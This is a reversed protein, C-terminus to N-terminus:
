SFMSNGSDDSNLPEEAEDQSKLSNQLSEKVEDDNAKEINEEANLSEKPIDEKTDQIQANEETNEEAVVDIYGEEEGQNYPEGLLLELNHKAEKHKPEVELAKKYYKIAREIDGVLEYALALNYLTDANDPIYKLVESFQEISQAYELEKTLMIAYAIRASTNMPDINIADYFAIKANKIAGMEDYACGLGFYYRSEQPKIAIARKFHAISDQFSKIYYNCRGLEYYVEDNEEDYKLAEFFKDFAQNYEGKQFLNKAWACILNSIYKIIIEGHEPPLDELLKNYLNVGIQFEGIMTYAQALTFAFSTEKPNQALLDKLLDIAERYQKNKLMANCLENQHYLYNSSQTDELSIIKKYTVIAEEWDELTTQLQAIKELMEFDDGVISVIQKYYKLCDQWYKNKYALDALLILIELNEPDAKHIENYADYAKEYNDTKLYLDALVYKLETIRAEDVEADLIMNYMEIAKEYNQNQEYLKSLMEVANINGSDYMLIQEYLEIARATPGNTSYYQALMEQTKIDYPAINLIAEYHMIAMQENGSAMLSQALIRRLEVDSYNKSLERQAYRQLEAHLGQEFLKKCRDVPNDPIPEKQPEKKENENVTSTVFLVYIWAITCTFLVLGIILLINM